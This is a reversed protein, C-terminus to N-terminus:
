RPLVRSPRDQWRVERAVFCRWLLLWLAPRSM